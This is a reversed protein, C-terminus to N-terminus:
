NFVLKTSTGGLRIESIRNQGDGNNYLVTTSRFRSEASEIRIGAEARVKKGKMIQVRSDGVVFKYDGPQLEEGGVVSPQFLTVNHNEAATALALVATLFMLSFLRM